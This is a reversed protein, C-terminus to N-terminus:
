LVSKKENPERVREWETLCEGIWNTHESMEEALSENMKNNRM